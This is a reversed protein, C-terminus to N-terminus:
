KSCVRVAAAQGAGPGEGVAVPRLRAPITRRSHGPVRDLRVGMAPGM